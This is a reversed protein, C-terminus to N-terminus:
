TRKSNKLSQQKQQLNQQRKKRWQKKQRPAKKPAAKKATETKAAETQAPKKETKLKGDPAIDTIELLTMDQRHGRTRRFNKRRKRRFVMIKETRTQRLLKAAVVADKVIPSGLALKDGDACMLVEDLIVKDGAEGMLRDVIVKDGLAVKYQKGGTKVVAYM